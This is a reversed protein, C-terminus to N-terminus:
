LVKSLLNQQACLDALTTRLYAIRARLINTYGEISRNKSFIKLFYTSLKELLKKYLMDAIKSMDENSDFYESYYQEFECIYANIDCMKCIQLQNLKKM